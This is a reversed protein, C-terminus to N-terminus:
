KSTDKNVFKQGKQYQASIEYRHTSYKKTFTESHTEIRHFKKSRLGFMQSSLKM